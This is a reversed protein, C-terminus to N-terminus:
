QKWGDLLRQLLAALRAVEPPAMTAMNSRGQEKLENILPQLKTELESTAILKDQKFIRYQHGKGYKRKEARCKYHNNDKIGELVSTVGDATADPIAQAIAEPTHWKGDAYDAVVAKGISYSQKPKVVALNERMAKQVAAFRMRENGSFKDAEEWYKRFRGETLNTPLSEPNLVTTSFNLFRGFRLRFDVWKQSKCEKAALEEQTWNSRAFLLAMAQDRKAAAETSSDGYTARLKAREAEYEAETMRNHLIVVTAAPESM